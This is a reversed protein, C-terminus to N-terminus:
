KGNEAERLKKLAIKYYSPTLEYGIFNGNRRLVEVGLGATGAFTDLVTMGPEFYTGLLDDIMSQPTPCPHTEKPEYFYSKESPYKKLGRPTRSFVLGIMEESHANGDSHVERVLQSEPACTFDEETVSYLFSDLVNFGLNHYLSTYIQPLSVPNGKKLIAKPLPLVILGSQKLVRSTESAVNGIMKLYQNHPVDDVRTGYTLGVNYPPDAIVLDVSADAVENMRESSKNYIHFQKKM